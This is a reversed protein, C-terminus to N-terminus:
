RSIGDLEVEEDSIIEILLHNPLCIIREGVKSIPGQKVDLKDPCSAEIVRITRDIVLLVNKGYETEINYVKEDEQLLIEEVPNGDVRVIAKKNSTKNVNTAFSIALFVNFLIVFFIILMDWKKMDEIGRLVDLLKGNILSCKM